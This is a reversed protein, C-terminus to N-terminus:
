KLVECDDLAAWVIQGSSLKVRLIERPKDHGRIPLARETYSEIVEGEFETLKAFKALAKSLRVRM